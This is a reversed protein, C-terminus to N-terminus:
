KWVSLARMLPEGFQHLVPFESEAARPICRHWPVILHGAGQPTHIGVLTHGFYFVGLCNGWQADRSHSDVIADAPRVVSEWTRRVWSEADQPTPHTLARESGDKAVMVGRDIGKVFDTVHVLVLGLDVGSRQVQERGEHVRRSLRQAAGNPRKCALGWTRGKFRAVVDPPEAFSVDECFTNLMCAAILETSLNRGLSAAGFRLLSLDGAKVERDFHGLLRPELPTGRARLVLQALIFIDAALRYRRVREFTDPLARRAVLDSFEATRAISTALWSGGPIRIDSAALYQGFERARDSITQISLASVRDSGPGVVRSTRPPDDASSSM